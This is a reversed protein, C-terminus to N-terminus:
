FLMVLDVKYTKVYKFYLHLDATEEASVNPISKLYHWQFIPILGAGSPKPICGLSRSLM